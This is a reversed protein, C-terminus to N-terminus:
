KPEEEEEEEEEDEETSKKPTKTKKCEVGCIKENKVFSAALCILGKIGGSFLTVLFMVISGVAKMIGDFDKTM